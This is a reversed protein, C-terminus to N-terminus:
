QALPAAECRGVGARRDRESPADYPHGEDGEVAELMGLYIWPYAFWSAETTQFAVLMGLLALLLGALLTRRFDRARRWLHVGRWTSLGLGILLFSLGIVGSDFMHHEFLNSVWAHEGTSYRFMDGYAGVGWGIWPRERWVALANRYGELRLAVNPDRSLAGFSALRQLIEDMHAPDYTPILSTFGRSSLTLGVAVALLALAGGAAQWIGIGPRRATAVLAGVTAAVALGVWAGRTLSVVVGGVGLVLGMWALARLRWSVRARTLGIPLALLSTGLLYSGWINAEWLAGRPQHGSGIAQLLGLVAAGVGTVLQASVAGLLRGRALNAVVVYIAAMMWLKNWLILSHTRQPANLLSAFLAALLWGFLPWAAPPWRWELQRRRAALSIVLLTLALAVYEPLVRLGAVSTTYRNIAASGILLWLCYVPWRARDRRAVGRSGRRENCSSEHGDSM